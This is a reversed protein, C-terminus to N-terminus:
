DHRLDRAAGTAGSRGEDVCGCRHHNENHYTLAFNLRCEGASGVVFEAKSQVEGVDQAQAAGVLLALLGVLLVIKRMSKPQLGAPRTGVFALGKVKENATASPRTVEGPKTCQAVEM